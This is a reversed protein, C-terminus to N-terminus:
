ARGRRARVRGFAGYNEAASGDIGLDCDERMALLRGEVGQRRGLQVTTAPAPSCMMVVWASDAEGPWRIGSSLRSMRECLAGCRLRRVALSEPPPAGASRDAVGHHEAFRHEAQAEVLAGLLYAQSRRRRFSKTKTDTRVRTREIRPSSACSHLYAPWCTGCHQRSPSCNSRGAAVTECSGRGDKLGACSRRAPVLAVGCMLDSVGHHQRKVRSKRSPARATSMTQHIAWGARQSAAKLEASQGMRPVMEAGQVVIVHTITPGAAHVPQRSQTPSAIEDVDGEPAATCPAVAAPDRARLGCLHAPSARRSGGPRRADLHAKDGTPSACQTTM